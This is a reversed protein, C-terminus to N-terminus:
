GRCKVQFKEVEMLRLLSQLRILLNGPLLLLRRDQFSELCVKLFFFIRRLLFVEIKFVKRSLLWDLFSVGFVCEMETEIEILQLVKERKASFIIM